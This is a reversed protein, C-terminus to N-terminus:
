FQIRNEPLSHELASESHSIMDLIVNRYIFFSM